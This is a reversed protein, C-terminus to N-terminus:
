ALCYVQLKLSLAQLERTHKECVRRVDLFSNKAQQFTKFFKIFVSIAGDEVKFFKSRSNM